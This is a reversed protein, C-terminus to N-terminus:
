REVPRQPQGRCEAAETEVFAVADGREAEVAMRQEFGVVSHRHRSHNQQRQVDTERGFLLGVDQLVGARPGHNEVGLEQGQDLLEAALQRVQLPDGEVGAVVQGIPRVGLGVFFQEGGGVGLGDVEGGVVLAGDGLQEVGAAAGSTGLADHQAVARYVHVGKRGDDAGVAATAALGGVLLDREVGDRQEVGVAPSKGVGDGKRATAVDHEAAEVWLKDTLPDLALVHRLKGHHGRHSVGQDVEVAELAVVERAEFVDHDAAGRGGRQENAFELLGEAAGADGAVAEGLGPGDGHDGVELAGEALDRVVLACAAM